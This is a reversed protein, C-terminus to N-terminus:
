DDIDEICALKVGQSCMEKVAGNNDRIGKVADELLIVSIGLKIADLVTNKVGYDTAIGGVMVCNVGGQELRRALDTGNFGSYAEKDAETGKSIITASRPIKLDDPFDAGQTDKVCHMSWVGGRQKFSIHNAPHWDRTAFIPLKKSAFLEIYRNIVTIIKDSDPVPLTGSPLFDKQIDIIILACSRDLKVAM